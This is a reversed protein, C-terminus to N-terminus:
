FSDYFFTTKKPFAKLFDNLDGNIEVNPIYSIADATLGERGLIIRAAAPADLALEYDGDSKKEVTGTGNQYKVVYIGNNEKIQEDTIKLTFEGKEKPYVTANLVGEMDLIRGSGGYYLNRKVLANEDCLLGLVPTDHPLNNINVFNYNGDYTRLFGLLKLLVNKDTFVLEEVTITRTSRDPLLYVYGKSDGDNVFYTYRCEKYPELCFARGNKREFMMNSKKAVASYIEELIEAHEKQALTVDTFREIKEFARFSCEACLYRFITEYGFKRYYGISFPHLISVLSGNNLSHAFVGNFTERVGGLRRYEPKSAVGGVAACIIPKGDYFLPIFGCEIQSILTGNDLFTGFIDKDDEFTTEEINHIYASASVESFQRFDTEKLLKRTIM